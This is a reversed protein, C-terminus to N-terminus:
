RIFMFYLEEHDSVLHGNLAFDIREKTTYDGNDEDIWIVPKRETKRGLWEKGQTICVALDVLAVSKKHGSKGYAVNVSGAHFLQEVIWKRPERPALADKTTQVKFRTSLPREADAGVAQNILAEIDTISNMM